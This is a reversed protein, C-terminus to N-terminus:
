LTEGSNQYAGPSQFSPESVPTDSWTGGIAPRTGALSGETGGTYTETGSPVTATGGQPVAENAGAKFVRAAAFGVAACGALFTGPNQRALQQVEVALQRADKQEVTQALRDMTQAGQQLISRLWSPSQEGLQDAASGLASSLSKAQEAAIGKRSDVESAIRDKATDSVKRADGRLEERLGGTNGTATEM